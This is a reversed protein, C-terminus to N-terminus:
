YNRGFKYTASIILESDQSVKFATDIDYEVVSMLVTQTIHPITPYYLVIKNNKKQLVLM